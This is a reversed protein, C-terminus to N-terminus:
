NTDENNIIDMKKSLVWFMKLVHDERLDSLLERSILPSKHVLEFNDGSLYRLGEGAENFYEEGVVLNEVQALPVSNKIYLKEM